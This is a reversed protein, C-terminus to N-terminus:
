RPRLPYDPHEAWSSAQGALYALAQAAAPVDGADLAADFAGHAYAAKVRAAVYDELATADPVPGLAVAADALRASVFGHLANANERTIPGRLTIISADGTHVTDSADLGNARLIEPEPLPAAESM